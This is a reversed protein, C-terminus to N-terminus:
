DIIVKDGLSLGSIVEVFSGTDMGTEISHISRIGDANEVYVIKEDNVLNVAKSPIYLVNERTDLTVTINGPIGGYLLLGEEEVVFYVRSSAGDETPQALEPGGVDKAEVVTINKEKGLITASYTEGPNFYQWHETYASLVFRESENLIIITQNNISREDEEVDMVYTVVGDIPSIMQLVSSDAISSAKGDASLEALVQGKTVKDGQKVYIGKYALDNIAFSLQKEGINEVTLSINAKKILDGQLVEAFELEDNKYAEIVPKTYLEEEKPFLLIILVIFIVPILIFIIKKNKMFGGYMILASTSETSGGM